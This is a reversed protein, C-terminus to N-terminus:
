PPVRAFHRISPPLIGLRQPIAKILAPVHMRWDYVLNNQIPARTVGAVNPIIDTWNSTTDQIAQDNFVRQFPPLGFRCRGSRRHHRRTPGFPIPIMPSSHCGMSPTPGSRTSLMQMAVMHQNVIGTNEQWSLGNALGDIHQTLLAFQDPPASLLGFFRLVVEAAAFRHQHQLHHRRHGQVARSCTSAHTWQEWQTPPTWQFNVNVSTPDLFPAEGAVDV